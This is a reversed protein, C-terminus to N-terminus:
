LKQASERCRVSNEGLVDDQARNKGKAAAKEVDRHKEASWKANDRQSPSM